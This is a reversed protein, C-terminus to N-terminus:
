ISNNSKIWLFANEFLRVWPTIKHSKKEMYPYYGCQWPFLSREPHPMSLLHRGNESCMAAINYDSGNPNFPYESNSYVIPIQNTSFKDKNKIYYRGEKHAIWIGLTCGELGKLFVSSSKRIDVSVFRSEFIGSKNVKMEINPEKLINEPEILNLLIALQNGNCVSLSLTDERAYYNELIKRATINYKFISAWGRASGLVDSNSFGGCFVILNIDELNERGEVIDTMTIDKVEFGIYYLAYAMERDGNTGKDRIIAAKIKRSGSIKGYSILRRSFEDPINFQKMPKNINTLREHAVENDMQLCEMDHSTMYWCTRLENLDMDVDDNIRIRKSKFDPEAIVMGKHYKFYNGMLSKVINRCQVLVGLGEYFLLEPKINIKLGCDGAFAMECLATIIGGDSVDHGADIGCMWMWKKLFSFGKKFFKIDRLDPVLDKDGGLQNYVQALASTGLFDSPNSPIPQLPFYIICTDERPKIDPTIIKTKDYCKGVATVIATGPSKVITGDNYKQTMSVSDKGTPITVGLEVCLDSIARVADYLRADEGPQGCPWMWNVSLVITELGYSQLGGWMLNLLAEGVALRVGAEVNVISPIPRDGIGVAICKEGTYDSAKAAVDALPLQLPGVTQQQAVLGTVSRDVKHTLWEKSAIKTLRLVKKLKTEISDNPINIENTNEVSNDHDVNIIRRPTEKFLFDLDLDVYKNGDKQFILKKDDTCEGIIYCPCQERNSIDIVKNIARRHVVIAMREQSENILIEMTSLSSDGVPFREMYFIAGTDEVLESLCNFHGGAGHDHISIIPNEKSEVLARIVRNARNQMEPNARQVAEFEINQSFEGTDVSSVSGGGIGIRYNDGGLLIIVDGKRPTGKEIYHRKTHGVGGALMIVKDWGLLNDGYRHEFTTVTGAILPQGFKNGYDSAGNSAQILITAPDQYKWDRELINNEWMLNSVRAYSTLYGAIGIGPISGRGGAMRDRIEGGSGTAAGPFACVTTPFNHTESKLSIAEIMGKERFVGNVPAFEKIHSGIIFAVNDRYASLISYTPRSTTKILDFLSRDCVNNDIIYQANFQKHRCHESNTQAFGFIEADTLYRKYKIQFNNLYDIEDNSLALGNDRNYQSIDKIHKVSESSNYCLELSDYIEQTMVDLSTEYSILKEVRIIGKYGLNSLIEKVNTSWPTIMSRKPGVLPKPLEETHPHAQFLWLLEESISINNKTIIIYFINKNIDSRLFYTFM